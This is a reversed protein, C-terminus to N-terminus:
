IGEFVKPVGDSFMMANQPQQSQQSQQRVLDPRIQPEPLTESSEQIVERRVIFPCSCFGPDQFVVANPACVRLHHFPNLIRADVLALFDRNRRSNTPDLFACRPDIDFYRVISGSAFKVDVTKNESSYTFELPLNM